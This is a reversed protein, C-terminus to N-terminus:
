ILCDPPSSFHANSFFSWM